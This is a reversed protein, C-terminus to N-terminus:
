RRIGQGATRLGSRWCRGIVDSNRARRWKRKEGATGALWYYGSARDTACRVARASVSGLQESRKTM